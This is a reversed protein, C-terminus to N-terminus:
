DFNPKCRVIVVFNLLTRNIISFIRAVAFIHFDRDDSSTQRSNSIGAQLSILDKGLLYPANIWLLISLIRFINFWKTRVDLLCQSIFKMTIPYYNLKHSFITQLTKKVGEIYVWGDNKILILTHSSVNEFSISYRKVLNYSM